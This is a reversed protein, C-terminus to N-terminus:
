SKVMFDDLLIEIPTVLSHILLGCFRRFKRVLTVM